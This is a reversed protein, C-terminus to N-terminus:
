KGFYEEEGTRVSFGELTQATTYIIDAEEKPELRLISWVIEDTGDGVPQIGPTIGSSIFSGSPVHDVVELNEMLEKSKNKIKLMITQGSVSKELKLPSGSSERRLRGVLVIIGIIAFFVVLVPVLLMFIDQQASMDNKDSFYGVRRATVSFDGLQTIPVEAYYGESSSQNTYYVETRGTNEYLIMVRVDRLADGNQDTVYVQMTKGIVPQGSIRMSLTRTICEHTEVNCTQNADCHADTCCYGEARVCEHNRVSGCSCQVDVCSHSNTNCYETDRCDEDSCCEYYVCEHDSAYGCECELESCVHNKCEEDYQCQTDTFCEYDPFLGFRLSTTNTRGDESDCTVSLLYSGEMDSVDLEGEFTRNNTESLSGQEDGIVYDCSSMVTGSTVLVNIKGDKMTRDGKLYTKNEPSELVLIFPETSVSELTVELITDETINLTTVNDSYGVKSLTVTHPNGYLVTENEMSKNEFFENVVVKDTGGDPGTMTFESAGTANEITIGVGNIGSGGTNEVSFDLYWSRLMTEYETDELSVDSSLFKMDIGTNNMIISDEIKLDTSGRSLLGMSNEVSVLDSITVDEGEVVLGVSEIGQIGLGEITNDDGYVALGSSGSIVSNGSIVLGSGNMSLGSLLNGFTNDKILTSDGLVTGGGFGTFVNDEIMSGPGSVSFSGGSHNNGSIVHMGSGWFEAEEVVSGTVNMLSGNHSLIMYSDGGDSLLSCSCAEFNGSNNVLLHGDSDPDFNLTVNKLYLSGSPDITIDGDVDIETDNCVVSGNVVWDGTGGYGDSCEGRVGAAAILFVLVAAFLASECGM